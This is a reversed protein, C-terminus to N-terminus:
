ADKGHSADDAPLRAARDRADADAVEARYGEEWWKACRRDYSSGAFPNQGLGHTSKRCAERGRGRCQEATPRGLNRFKAM